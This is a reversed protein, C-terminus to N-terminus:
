YVVFQISQYKGNQNMLIFHYLGTSLNNIILQNSEICGKQIQQGLHNIISYSNQNELNQILIEGNQRTIISVKENQTNVTSLLRYDKSYTSVCGDNSKVKVAIKCSNLHYTDKLWLENSGVVYISDYNPLYWTYSHEIPNSNFVKFYRYIQNNSYKIESSFHNNPTAYIWVSKQYYAKCKSVSDFLDLSITYMQNGIKYCVKPQEEISTRGDGFNWQYSVKQSSSYSTNFLGIDQSPCSSIAVFEARLLYKCSDEANGHLFIALFCVILLKFKMPITENLRM